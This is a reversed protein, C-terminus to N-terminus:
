RSLGAVRFLSTPRPPQFLGRWGYRGYRSLVFYIPSCLMVKFPGVGALRQIRRRIQRAIEPIEPVNGALRGDHETFESLYANLRKWRKLNLGLRAFWDYDMGYRPHNVEDLQGTRRHLDATWFATDSFIVGAAFLAYNLPHIAPLRERGIEGGEQDVVVRHGFVLDLEPNQAFTEGVLRL